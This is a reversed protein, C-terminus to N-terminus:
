NPGTRVLELTDLWLRGDVKSDFKASPDRVIRVGILSTEGGVTFPQEVYVWPKTGLFPQTRVSLRAPSEMDRIELRPGENTTIADTRVWGRLFYRGPTVVTLQLVNAYSVNTTGHFTVRLSWKGDHVVADDRVTDFETSPQIRWDMAVLSPEREFGGNFLINHNPYAGRDKGLYDAWDHQAQSYRHAALLADIYAAAFRNDNFGKTSVYKWAQTADDMKGSKTLSEAYARTARRNDGIKGLIKAPDLSFQDFYRFLVGDYDPVTTLVRAASALAADAEGLQFHFNADRLWIQPIDGSLALARQYCFRARPTDNAALLAQGLDSWRYPNASDRRLAETYLSVARPVDAANFAAFGLQDPNETPDLNRLAIGAGVAVLIGLVLGAIKMPGV